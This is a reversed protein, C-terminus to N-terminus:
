SRIPVTQATYQSQASPKPSEATTDQKLRVSTTDPKLRVPTTDPKLRVTM